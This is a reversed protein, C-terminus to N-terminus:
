RASSRCTPARGRSSSTRSGSPTTRPSDPSSYFAPTRSSGSLGPPRLSNIAGVVSALIGLGVLAFLGFRGVASLDRKTVLEFFSLGGFAGATVFFTSAISSATYVLFLTSFTVGTLAAYAFFLAAATTSIRMAVSDTTFVLGLQAFLLGYFVIRNGLLLELAAPSHAVLLAVVGTVALGLTMWRYTVWLADSAAERAIPFPRRSAYNM